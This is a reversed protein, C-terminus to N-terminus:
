SFAREQGASLMEHIAKLLGLESNFATIQGEMLLAGQWTFHDTREIRVEFTVPSQMREM